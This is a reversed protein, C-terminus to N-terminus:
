VTHNFKPPQWIFDFYQHSYHSQSAIKSFDRTLVAIEKEQVPSSLKQIVSMQRCSCICFPSCEHSEEREDEKEEFQNQEIGTQPDSFGTEAIDRCPQASLVLLYITFIFSFLKMLELYFVVDLATRCVFNYLNIKNSAM